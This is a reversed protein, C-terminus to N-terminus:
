DPPCTSVEESFSITFVAWNGYLHADMLAQFVNRNTVSSIGAAHVIDNDDMRNVFERSLARMPAIIQTEIYSTPKDITEENTLRNLFLANIEATSNIVGYQRDGDVIDFALILCVPFDGSALNDFITANAEELDGVYVFRTKTSLNGVETEMASLLTAM